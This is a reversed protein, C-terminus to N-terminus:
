LDSVVGAELLKRRLLAIFDSEHNDIFQMRVGVVVLSIGGPIRGAIRVYDKETTVLVDASLSLAKKKLEKLDDSTYCYHDPYQAVGALFGAHKEVTQHFEKNKAIGSFAFARAAHLFEFDQSGDPVLEGSKWSGASDHVGAVYPIHDTCFVPIGGPIFAPCKTKGGGTNQSRTLIIADARQLGSLPERLIGRPMLYGNGLPHSADMLVIDLDRHLRRHQFADDLIIIDSEFDVVARMGSEFRNRGVLVPVGKLRSAMMFPEDGATTCDAFLRFGDSVVAGSKEARGRYGRSIVAPRYGMQGVLGATYLTMPTKGTGGATINGISIVPCPLHSAQLFGKKFCANRLAVGGEYIRSAGYLMRSFPDCYQRGQATMVSEVRHKLKQIM